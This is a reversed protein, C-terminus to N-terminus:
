CIEAFRKQAWFPPVVEQGKNLGGFLTYSHHKKQPRRERERERKRKRKRKRERERERERQKSGVGGRLFAPPLFVKNLLNKNGGGKKYDFPMM